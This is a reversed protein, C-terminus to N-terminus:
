ALGGALKVGIKENNENYLNYVVKGLMTRDLMLYAVHEGGAQRPIEVREARGSGTVSVPASLGASLGVADAVNRSLDSMADVALPANSTIGQALGMDMFEGVGMMLRSPSSIGFFGTVTKWVSKGVNLAADIVSKAGDVIGRALGKILDIGAQIMNPIGNLIAQVINRLIEPIASVVGAIIAPLNQVLSVLLRVGAEIIQPTCAILSSVLSSIIQPAKELLVPIANIIGTALGIMLQLAAEVLAPLNDLLIDVMDLIIQTVAPIMEPLSEAIGHAFQLLAQTGTELIQPLNQVIAQGFATILKQAIDLVKPISATMNNLFGDVGSKLKEMGMPDGTFIGTIGDMVTTVSPLFEAVMGRKLGDISTMMDQLSDQYHASAAVAEDSMVGGLEHVRQRMQETDEASTNLLAGLEMAGRGLLDTALAARQNEDTIGQLGSITAAFLEERSMSAVQEQTLGLAQFADSGEEAAKALTKLSPRMASMSTGSHALIADWEQYAEASIGLKQSSKDIEDGYAALDGTAKVFAGGAAMTTGLLATGATVFAKAGNGLAAGMKSGASQGASEGADNLVSTLNEKIGDTSPLIQVYAQAIDM